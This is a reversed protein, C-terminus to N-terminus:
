TSRKGGFIAFLGGGVAAVVGLVLYWVTRDTYTGTLTNSVQDLPSNSAHYSLALLVAGLALAALGFIRHTNMSM